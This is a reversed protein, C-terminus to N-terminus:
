AFGKYEGVSDDVVSYSDNPDGLAGSEIVNTQYKAWEAGMSKEMNNRSNFEFSKSRTSKLEGIVAAWFLGVVDLDPNLRFGPVCDSRLVVGTFGAQKLRQSETTLRNQGATVRVSGLIPIKKGLKKPISPLPVPEDRSDDDEDDENDSALPNMTLLVAVPDMGAATSLQEVLSEVDDEGLNEALAGALTVEPIPQIGADVCTQCISTWEGSLDELSTLETGGCVPVTVGSAGAEALAAIDDNNTNGCFILPVPGPFGGRAAEQEGAFTSIASVGGTIWAANAKATRIRGSLTNIANTQLLIATPDSPDPIVLEPSITLKGSPSSVAEFIRGRALNAAEQSLGLAQTSCYLFLLTRTTITAM